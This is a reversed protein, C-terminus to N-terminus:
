DNLETDPDLISEVGHIALTETYFSWDKGAIMQMAYARTENEGEAERALLQKRIMRGKEEFNRPINNVLDRSSTSFDIQDAHVDYLEFQVALFITFILREDQSIDLWSPCILRCLNEPNTKSPGRSAHAKKLVTLLYVQLCAIVPAYALIVLPYERLQTLRNLAAMHNGTLHDLYMRFVTRLVKSDNRSKKNKLFDTQYFQHDQLFPLNVILNIAEFLARNKSDPVYDQYQVILSQLCDRLCQMTLKMERVVNIEFSDLGSLPTGELSLIRKFPPDSTYDKTTCSLRYMSYVLFRVSAELVEIYRRGEIRQIIMDQRVAKMRDFVFDCIYMWDDKRVCINLLLHRVTRRLVSWPRLDLARSFEQGIASRKFEKVALKVDVKPPNTNPKMEFKSLRKQTQREIMEETTCMTTCLGVPILSEGYPDPRWGTKYESEYDGELDLWYDDVGSM